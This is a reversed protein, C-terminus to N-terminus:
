QRPLQKLLTSRMVKRKGEEDIMCYPPYDPESGILITDISAPEYSGLNTQHAGLMAAVSIISVVILIKTIKM